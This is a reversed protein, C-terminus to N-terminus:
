QMHKYDKWIQKGADRLTKVSESVSFNCPSLPLWLLPNSFLGSYDKAASYRAVGAFLDAHNYIALSIRQPPQAHGPQRLIHTVSHLLVKFLGHVSYGHDGCLTVGLDPLAFRAGTYGSGLFFVSDLLNSNKGDQHYDCQMNYSIQRGCLIRHRMHHIRQKVLVDGDESLLDINQHAIKYAEPQVALIVALSVDYQWGLEMTVRANERRKYLPGDNMQIAQPLNEKGVVRNRWAADAMLSGQRDPGFALKRDAIDASHTDGLGYGLSQYQVTGYIAGFHVSPQSASQSLQSGSKLTLPFPTLLHSNNTPTRDILDQDVVPLNHIRASGLCALLARDARDMAPKNTGTNANKPDGSGNNIKEVPKHEALKVKTSDVQKPAFILYTDRPKTLFQSIPCVDADETEPSKTRKPPLGVALVRGAIDLLIIPVDSPLERPSASNKMALAKLARLNPYRLAFPKERGPNSNYALLDKMIYRACVYVDHQLSTSQGENRSQTLVFEVSQPIDGLPLHSTEQLFRAVALDYDVTVVLSDRFSKRVYEFAMKQQILLQAPTFDQAPTPPLLTAPVFAIHRQQKRKPQYFPIISSRRKLPSSNDLNAQSTGESRHPLAASGIFPSTESLETLPSSSPQDNESLDTLPSSIPLTTIRRDLDHHLQQSRQLEIPM